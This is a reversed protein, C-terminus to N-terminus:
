GQQLVATNVSTHLHIYPLDKPLFVCVPVCVSDTERQLEPTGTHFPFVLRPSIQHIDAAMSHETYLKRSKQIMRTKPLPAKEEDEDEEGEEGKRRFPHDRM